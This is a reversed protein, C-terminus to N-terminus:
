EVQVGELLDKGTIIKYMADFYLPHNKVFDLYTVPKGDRKENLIAAIRKVEEERKKKAASYVAARQDFDSLDGECLEKLVEMEDMKEMFIPLDPVVWVSIKGDATTYLFGPHHKMLEPHFYFCARARPPVLPKLTKRVKKCLARYSKAETDALRQTFAATIMKQTEADPRDSLDIEKQNFAMRKVLPVRLEKQKRNLKFMLPYMLRQEVGAVDGDSSPTWAGDTQREVAKEGDRDDRKM